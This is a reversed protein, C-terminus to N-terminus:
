SLLIARLTNYYLYTKCYAYKLESNSKYGQYFTFGPITAVAILPIMLGVKVTGLGAVKALAATVM